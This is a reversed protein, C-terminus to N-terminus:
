SKNSLLYENIFSYSNHVVWGSDPKWIGGFRGYILFIIRVDYNTLAFGDHFKRSTMTNIKELKSLPELKM